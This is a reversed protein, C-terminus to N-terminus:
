LPRDRSMVLRASITSKTSITRIAPKRPWVRLIHRAMSKLVCRQFVQGKTYKPTTVGKSYFQLDVTTKLSFKRKVDEVGDSLSSDSPKPSTIESHTEASFPIKSVVKKKQMDLLDYLYSKGDADNRILLTGGYVAYHDIAKKANLVPVAFETSYRYWGNRAEVDHKPKLNERWEGNEALLLMEDLNTAAQMKVKRLTPKMSKTYESAKYESPLDKGVYVPQADSLITAFPRKTNVLTKLYAEAATYDRTDNETDIVPMTKGDIRKISYQVGANSASVDTNATKAREAAADFADQWKQAIEQLTAFDTGYTEQAATCADPLRGKSELDLQVHDAPEANERFLVAFCSM